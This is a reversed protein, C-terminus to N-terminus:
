RPPLTPHFDPYPPATYTPVPHAKLMSLAQRVGAELQPDHGERVLKPDQWVEIDPAIGHNEIVYKGQLGGIAINPSQVSGGDKLTPTGGIGVLGGWTREGILPGIHNMRFYWPLADGGSGSFQNILMVKPGYIALPPDLTRKGERPVLMSMPKRNLYDIIYDAIQGGHNYREDLIVGEKGVQAFFYRNFNTFGGYATDPLYVYGLKGGSMEDVKRRNDEIWAYNRLAFENAVPIVTVDRAASGDARPGVRITVQKGATEAFAAYLDDSAHLVRGSVALLFEGAKVDAGPQTLPALLDPNWNEGNYIRAFRYRGAAISYDAGLLGTSVRGTPPEAGGDVFMHGVSLYSLMERFLFTLDDRSTVGALYPEFRKEAAALNLGHYHPDYFFDRQIRWAEHYMQQWEARPDVHVEMSATDLAVAGAAPAHETGVLFWHGKQAYLLKGGNASVKFGDIGSLFPSGKRTSLAFKTVDSKPPTSATQTEAINEVYFEGSKGAQLSVYNANPLPLAVIRQSLGAFDIATEAKGAVAKANAAKAADPKPSPVTVPEEGKITEDDSQPNVPSAVNRALVALYVSSSVPHQDSTMDLGQSTLGTNTSATFYLYTGGADFQPYQVDSLGDTLQHTSGNAVDYVFAAHLYSPLANVYVIWRSDPSWGAQFAHPGFSAYPATAVRVPTPRDIDVYWLGLRKDAYVIKKSDPSWVPSYYFTPSGSHINIIRAPTLGKQDSIHLQYEGSADSFYAIFHGDPSWAPDRNTEGSAAAITRISGHEAPVTLISGRAEFVARIGTPSVNANEISPGVRAYHPRVQPLDAAITVNVGHAAGTKPDFIKLAGFQSYVIADPGASASTIDFGEAPLVRSVRQSRPDFAFLTVPGNRDSLFYVRDGLWMPTDDNSNERPVRVVHSDSLDAVWIPTTQGGRYHKWFPEWRFGPSYALHSGDPSYSGDEAATFPLPVPYGGSAPVTFLRNSDNTNLMSSEFTVNKGDPTWGVAIDPAPHSTLRRPEGGAAAVVYVDINGDYNGSYAIQTGDPSFHPSSGLNFGTILRRAAGGGRPVIWLDGGYAFAIETASLTPTQLLLPPAANSALPRAFLACALLCLAAIISRFRM